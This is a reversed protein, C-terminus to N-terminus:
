SFVGHLDNMGGPIGDQFGQLGHCADDLFPVGLGDQGIHQNTLL